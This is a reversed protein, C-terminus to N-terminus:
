ELEPVEASTKLYVTCAPSLSLLPTVTTAREALPPVIRSEEPFLALRVSFEIPLVVFTRTSVVEGATLLMTLCVGELESVFAALTIKRTVKLSLTVPTSIESKASVFVPSASPVTSKTEGTLPM